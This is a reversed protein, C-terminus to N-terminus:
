QMSILHHLRKRSPSRSLVFSPPRNLKSDREFIQTNIQEKLNRIRLDMTAELQSADGLLAFNLSIVSSTECAAALLILAIGDTASFQPGSIKYQAQGFDTERESVNRETMSQAVLKRYNSQM